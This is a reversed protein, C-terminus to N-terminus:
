PWIELVKYTTGQDKRNTIGSNFLKFVIQKSIEMFTFEYLVHAVINMGENVQM